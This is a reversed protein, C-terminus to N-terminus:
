GSIGARWDAEQKQLPTWDVQCESHIGVAGSKVEVFHLGLSKPLGSNVKKIHTLTQSCM